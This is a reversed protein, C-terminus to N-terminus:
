AACTPHDRAWEAAIHRALRDGFLRNLAYRVLLKPQAVALRSSRALATPADPSQHNITKLDNVLKALDFRGAVDLHHYVFQKFAKFEHESVSADVPDQLGQRRLLYSILAIHSDTIQRRGGEEHSIQDVHKRLRILPEPLCALKVNESLRLWLDYDQSRRIRPRYGGIRKVLRKSYFASSHAFFGKAIKKELRSMLSEHIAPYRWTGVVVGNEDIEHHGSGLLGIDPHRKVFDLQHQLRHPESLDDADIRAIWDGNACTIGVNLSDALGTNEKDIIQIRSDRDQFARLMRPSGDESGDNVIIFQFNAMTQALISEVAQNLWREGNFVAMLVTVAPTGSM